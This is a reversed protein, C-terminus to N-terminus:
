DLIDELLELLDGTADAAGLAPLAGLTLVAAAMPWLHPPPAARLAAVR